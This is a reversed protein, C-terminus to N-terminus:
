YAATQTLHSSLRTAHQRQRKLRRRENRRANWRARRHSGPLGQPKRNGSKTILYPNRRSPASLLRRHQDCRPQKTRDCKPHHTSIGCISCPRFARLSLAWRPTAGAARRQAAKYARRRERREQPTLKAGQHACSRSCYTARRIPDDFEAGCHACTNINMQPHRSLATLAIVVDAAGADLGLSTARQVARWHRKGCASSCFKRKHFSSFPQRCAKCVLQHPGRLALRSLRRIESAQNRYRRTCSACRRAPLGRGRRQLARGCDICPPAASM